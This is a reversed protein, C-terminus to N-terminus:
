PRISLHFPDLSTPIFPPLITILSIPSFSPNLMSDMGMVGYWVVGHWMVDYWAVGCWVVGCWVVGCM